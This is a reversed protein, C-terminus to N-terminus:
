VDLTFGLIDLNVTGAGNMAYAVGTPTVTGTRCLVRAFGEEASVKVCPAGQAGPPWLNVYVGAGPASLHVQFDVPVFGTDSLAPVKGVLSVNTAIVAAGATLANVSNLYFHERSVEGSVCRLNLLAPPTPATAAFTSGCAGIVRFASYGFPMLPNTPATTLRAATPLLTVPDSILVIFYMTDYALVGQDLGNVGNVAANIAIPANLVMDYANSSDRCQGTSIFVSSAGCTFFLNELYLFPLNVIPVARNIAM